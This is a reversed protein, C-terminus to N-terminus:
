ADAAEGTLHRYIRRSIEAITAKRRGTRDAEWETLVVLAYPKRGQPYVIGADHAVTSIEGTKNAVKADDPLGAPIGSRFEQGHLIDLMQRSAEPTFARRDEILRLVRLMGDATIRNNIKQEFAREDEVGRKLEVGEALGLERLTAQINELGVLDILLNTALNSSTVIMHTALEDVHMTRGRQDYVASNADRAADVRFSTRDAVSVFRNRVHVRSKLDLEGAHIAGFVGVLVPVKIVSAAHFWEDGRYSWGTRTEYDYWAVGVGVLGPQEALTRVSARLPDEVPGT